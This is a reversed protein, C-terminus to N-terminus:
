PNVNYIIKFQECVVPMKFSPEKKNKKCHRGFATWHVKKWYELSLDGEGEKAAFETSVEDFPIIDVHTTEIICKPQGNWNTLISLNGVTPIKENEVEYDWYLGATAYKKGKLVLNLLENADAENDCFHFTEYYKEKVKDGSIRVFENWYALVSEPIKMTFIEMM